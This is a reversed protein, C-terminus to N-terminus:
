RAERLFIKVLRQGRSEELSAAAWDDDSIGGPGAEL